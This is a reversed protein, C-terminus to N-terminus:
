ASTKTFLFAHDEFRKLKGFIGCNKYYQMSFGHQKMKEILDQDTIGWQWFGLDDKYLRGTEPNQENMRNFVTLDKPFDSPGVYDFYKEKGLDVLRVTKNTGILQQNYVIFHNTIPAYMAIVEDWHPVAQHLLVDFLFIADVSGIKNVTDNSSFSAKLFNVNRQLKIKQLFAPTTHYDVILGKVGPYRAATYLTYAGDVNWVGGLDVFSKIELERFATDILDKKNLNFNPHFEHSLWFLAGKVAKKTQHLKNPKIRM